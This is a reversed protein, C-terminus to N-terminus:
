AFQIMEECRVAKGTRMSENACIGVAISAAGDRYTAARNFPDPPPHQGFIQELMVRDGGGHGGAATPIEVEEPAHFMRHLIISSSAGQGQAAAIESDSQGAIIHSGERVSVEIRGREGTIAVQFGEWPSYAVLSYNLLVGTAYQVMVSMTDEISIGAAFVNRDRLYGTEAEAEYYLGRLRDSISAQDEGPGATGDILLKFPDDQAEPVGTYREYRTLKEDGRRVANERGYFKLGGMAFVTTPLANIWWNVLDFHHTAKHVLLGGSKERERHWRRFYDAGHRTDLMWNFSVATPRGIAGSAVLERVKTALPMYRYNFTVRLQKGTERIADLITRAKDADITMPKECIVDCGLRMARSIYAHHTFDPSCVIVTDPTRERVMREFIEAHYTPRPSSALESEIRRNHWNMRTQSTDCLAVLEGQDKFTKLVADVFMRARGGTGVIAYKRVKNM